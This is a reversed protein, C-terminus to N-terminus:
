KKKLANMGNKVGSKVIGKATEKGVETLIDTVFKEGRSIQQRNLNKYNQELQMRRNLTELEKNTMEYLKKKKLRKAELHDESPVRKPKANSTTNKSELKSIKKELAARDRKDYQEQRKKTLGVSLHGGNDLIKLDKKAGELQRNKGIYVGPGAHGRVLRSVNGPRRDKRVGWKMGLVGYHYLEHNYKETFTKEDM